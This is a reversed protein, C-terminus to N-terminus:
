AISVLKKASMDAIISQLHQKARLVRTTSTKLPIGLLEAIDKHKMGEIAFLNFTLRLPDPLQRVAVLLETETLQSEYIAQVTILEKDFDSDEVAFSANDDTVADNEDLSENKLQAQRRYFDIATNVFVRRMWGVLSGDGNYQFREIKEFVKIYAEQIMDDADEPCSAYRMCIARMFDVTQLFLERQWRDKGKQCGAVIKEEDTLIM